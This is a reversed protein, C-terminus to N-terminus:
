RRYCEPVDAGTLAAIVTDKIEDEYAGSVLAYKDLKAFIRAAIDLATEVDPPGRDRTEAFRQAAAVMSPIDLPRAGLVPPGELADAIRKLSIAISLETLGEVYQYKRFAEAAIPEIAKLRQEINAPIDDM